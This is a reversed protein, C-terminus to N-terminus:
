YDTSLAWHIALFGERSPIRRTIIRFFTGIIASFSTKNPILLKIDSFFLSNTSMTGVGVAGETFSADKDNVQVFPMGSVSAILTNGNAEFRFEFPPIANRNKPKPLAAKGLVEESGDPRQDANASRRNQKLIAVNGDSIEAVYRGQECNRLMMRVHDGFHCKVMARITANKVIIPCYMDRDMLGLVGQVYSFRCDNTEWGTLENPSIMLPFWRNIPVSPRSALAPVGAKREIQALEDLRKEAKVKNLETSGNKVKEYWYGARRLMTIKKTGEAAQGADWWADALAVRDDAAAPPSKLEREALTKFEPDSGKALYSLAKKWDGKSGCYYIGVALNAAADDPTKAM